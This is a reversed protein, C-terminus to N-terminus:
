LLVDEEMDTPSASEEEDGGSPTASVDTVLRVNSGKNRISQVISIRGKTIRFGQARDTGQLSSSSSWYYSNDGVGSVDFAERIGATPLFVAGALEMANWNDGATYVNAEWETESEKPVFVDNGYNKKPDTFTDPLFIIGHVGCVTAYGM